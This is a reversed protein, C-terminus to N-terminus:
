PRFELCLRRGGDRHSVREALERMITMGRGSYTTGGTLATPDFGKGQDQIDTTLGGDARRAVDIVVRRAAFPMLTLQYYVSDLRDAFGSDGDACRQLELNGHTVANVVAEHLCLEVDVQRGPHLWGREVLGSCLSMAVNIRFASGSALSLRLSEPEPGAGGLLAQVEELVPVDMLLQAGAAVARSIGTDSAPHLLVIAAGEDSSIACGLRDALTRVVAPDLDPAGIRPRNDCPAPM